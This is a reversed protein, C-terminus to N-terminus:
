VDHWMTGNIKHWFYVHFYRIIILYLVCRGVNAVLLVGFALTKGSGWIRNSRPQVDRGALADAITAAQISSMNGIRHMTGVM